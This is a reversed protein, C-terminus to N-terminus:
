GGIQSIGEEVSERIIATFRDQNDEFAPRMFPHERTGKQKISNALPFSIAKAEEKGIQAKQALWSALSAKNPMYGPKTGEEVYLAYKVNPWVQRVMPIPSSRRISQILTSAGFSNNKRVNRQAEVVMKQAAKTLGKDIAKKMTAPSRKFAQAIREDGFLQGDIKM